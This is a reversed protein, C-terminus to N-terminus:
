RANERREVQVSLRTHLEPQQCAIFKGANMCWLAHCESCRFHDAANLGRPLQVMPLNCCPSHALDVKSVDM